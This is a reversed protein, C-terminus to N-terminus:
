RTFNLTWGNSSVMTFADSDGSAIGNYVAGADFNLTLDDDTLIWTGTGSGNYTSNDSYTTLFQYSYTENENYTLTGDTTSGESNNNGNINWFGVITKETLEEGTGNNNNNGNDDDSSSSSSSSVAAATGGGVAAVGVGVGVIAATSWGVAGATIVGASTAGTAATASAVAVSSTASGAAATSATTGTTSAGGAGTGSSGSDRINHYLLAVVGFRAGSEVMDITVNDSFGRLQTPVKDLEMSVKIEGEKPVEQWAPPEEDADISMTFTQSRVVEKSNNVALFLYEIQNTTASPAPLIGSYKNKRILIMPVFVLDAEGAAKFYCRVLKIGESDEIQAELKIRHDPVFYDPSSHEMSTAADATPTITPALFFAMLFLSLIILISKKGFYSDTDANKTLKGM